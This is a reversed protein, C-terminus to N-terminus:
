LRRRGLWARAPTPATRNAAAIQAAHAKLGVLALSSGCEMAVFVTAAVLDAAVGAGAGVGVGVGVIFGLDATTTAM